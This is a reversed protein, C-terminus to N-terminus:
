LKEKKKSVHQYDDSFALRFFNSFTSVISGNNEANLIREAEVPERQDDDFRYRNNDDYHAVAPAAQMM